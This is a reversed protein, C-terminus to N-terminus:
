GVVTKGLVKRGIECHQPGRETTSQHHALGATGRAPTDGAELIGDAIPPPGIPLCDGFGVRRQSCDLEISSQQGVVADPPQLVVSRTCCAGLDM